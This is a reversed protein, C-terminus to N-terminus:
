KSILSDPRRPEPHAAYIREPYAALARRILSYCYDTNLEDPTVRIIRWGLAAAESYKHMDNLYGKGRVHRGQVWAGGEVELAIRQWPWAVDFRWKRAPHFLFERIPPPDFTAEFEEFVRWAFSVAKGQSKPRAAYPDACDYPSGPTKAQLGDSLQKLAAEQFEKPLRSLDALTFRAKM